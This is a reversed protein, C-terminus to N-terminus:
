SLMVEACETWLTRQCLAAVKAQAMVANALRLISTISRYNQDLTVVSHVPFDVALRQLNDPSAFRWTYICQFPDGVVFVNGHVATVLRVLRYQLTNTDQLTCTSDGM